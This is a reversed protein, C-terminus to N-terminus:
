RVLVVKGSAIQEGAKLRCTAIRFYYIGDPFNEPTWVVTNLGQRQKVEIMDVLKGFQNYFTITVTEPQNLEYQITTSSTFPNPKILVKSLPYEDISFGACSEEVEEKSNCGTGNTMIVVKNGPTLLYDCVSQTECSSLSYNDIILLSDITTAEINSIAKINTLATNYKLMLYGGITILNEFGKLSTLAANDVIWIHGGVSTLNDLGSFNILAANLPIDVDGGITRLNNLGALNTMKDNGTIYFTSGISDLKNLGSFDSLVANDTVSVIGEIKVLNGLGNLSNLEPNNSIELSGIQNLNDLGTLDTLLANNTINCFGNVSSLNGLGSLSALTNNNSILLYGGVATLNDLGNLNSMMHNEYISLSGGISTLVNLGNLNTIDAGRITVSGEIETCNPFDVQFIDIESQGNFTYGEPLCPQAILFVPILLTLLLILKKM